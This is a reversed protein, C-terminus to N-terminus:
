KLTPCNRYVQNLTARKTKTSLIPHRQLIEARVSPLVQVRTGGPGDCRGAEVPVKEFRQLLLLLLLLQQMPVLGVDVELVHGPFLNQFRGQNSVLGSFRGREQLLQSKVLISSKFRGM